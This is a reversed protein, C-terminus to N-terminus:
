EVELAITEGAKAQFAIGVYGRRLGALEDVLLSQGGPQRPSTASKCVSIAKRKKRRCAACLGILEVREEMVTFGEEEALNVLTATPSLELVAGCSQCVAHYHVTRHSEFHSHSEGFGTAEVVGLERLLGLTRYVTSLNIRSCIEVAHELIEAAELHPNEELVTLVARRERTVRKGAARLFAVMQEANM